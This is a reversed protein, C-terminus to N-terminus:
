FDAKIPTSVRFKAPLKTYYQLNESVPAERIFVTFPLSSKDTKYMKNYM